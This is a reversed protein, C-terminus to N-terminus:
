RWRDVACKRSCYVGNPSQQIVRAVTSWGDKTNYTKSCYACTSKGSSYTSNSGTTSSYTSTSQDSLQSVVILIIVFVTTIVKNKKTWDSKKWVLYLGVPFFFVCLLIIGQDKQYWKKM